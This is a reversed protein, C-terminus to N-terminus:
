IWTGQNKCDSSQGAGGPLSFVADDQSDFYRSDQASYWFRVYQMMNMCLRGADEGIAKNYLDSIVVLHFKHALSKRTALCFVQFQVLGFPRQGRTVWLLADSQRHKVGFCWLTTHLSMFSAASPECFCGNQAGSTCLHNTCWQCIVPLPIFHPARIHAASGVELRSSEEVATRGSEVEKSRKRPANADTRGRIQWSSFLLIGTQWSTNLCTKMGAM